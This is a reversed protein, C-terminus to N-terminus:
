PVEYGKSRLWAAFNPDRQAHAADEPSLTRVSGGSAGGGLGMNLDKLGKALKTLNSRIKEPTDSGSPIFPSLRPEESLSMTAGTRDHVQLSGINALDTRLDNGEPDLRQDLYKGIVPLGRGLGVGNPHANLERLADQIRTLTNNNEAIAKTITASGQGGATKNVTPLDITKGLGPGHTVVGQAPAGNAGPLVQITPSQPAHYAHDQLYKKNEFGEAARRDAASERQKELDAAARQAAQARRDQASQALGQRRELMAEPSKSPDFLINQDGVHALEPSGYLDPISDSPIGLAGGSTAGVSRLTNGATLRSLAQNADTGPPLISGGAARAALVNTFAQQQAKHEDQEQARKDMAAQRDRQRKREVVDAFYPAAGVLSGFVSM